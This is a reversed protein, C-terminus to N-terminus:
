NYFILIEQVGSHHQLIIVKISFNYNVSTSDKQTNELSNLLKKEMATLVKYNWINRFRERLSLICYIVLIKLVRSRSLKM